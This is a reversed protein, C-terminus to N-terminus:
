ARPPQFIDAGLCSLVPADVRSPVPVLAPARQSAESSPSAPTARLPCCVCLSCDASCDTCEEGLEEECAAHAESAFAVVHVLDGTALILLVAILRLLLQM